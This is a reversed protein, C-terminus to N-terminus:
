APQRGREGRGVQTGPVDVVQRKPLELDGVGPHEVPRANKSTIRSWRSTARGGDTASIKSPRTSALVGPLKRVLTTV